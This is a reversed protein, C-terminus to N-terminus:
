LCSGESVWVVAWTGGGGAWSFAQLWHEEVKFSSGQARRHENSFEAHGAVVKLSPRPPTKASM